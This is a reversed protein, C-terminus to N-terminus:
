TSLWRVGEPPSAMWARLTPILARPLLRSRVLGSRPIWDFAIKAERSKLEALSGRGAQEVHFVVNFEHRNKKGDDFRQEHCLLAELVRVRLGCEEKFERQLARAASEGPEVHGGPLFRYGNKVNRCLLVRHSQDMLFGRAIVEIVDTRRSM